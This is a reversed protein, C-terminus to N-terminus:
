SVKYPPSVNIQNIMMYRVAIRFCTTLPVSLPNIWYCKHMTSHSGVKRKAAQQTNPSSLVAWLLQEDKSVNSDEEQDGQGRWLIIQEDKFL